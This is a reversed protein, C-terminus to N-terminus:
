SASRCATSSSTHAGMHSSALAVSACISAFWKPKGPRSAACRRRASRPRECCLRDSYVGAVRERRGDVAFTRSRGESALSESAASTPAHGPRAGAACGGHPTGRTGEPIPARRKRAVRTTTRGYALRRRRAAGADASHRGAQFQPTSAYRSPRDCFAHRERFRSIRERSLASAHGTGGACGFRAHDVNWRQGLAGPRCEPPDHTPTGVCQRVRRCGRPGGPAGRGRCRWAGRPLSRYDAGPPRDLDTSRRGCAPHPRAGGPERGRGMRAHGGTSGGSRGSRSRQGPTCNRASPFRDHGRATHAWPWYRRDEARARNCCRPRTVYAACDTPKLHFSPACVQARPEPTRAQLM